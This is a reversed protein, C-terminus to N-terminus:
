EAFGYVSVGVPAPASINHPGVSVPVQAGSFAGGGIPVFQAAPIALGDLLVSGVAGAPAVVNIYNDPFDAHATCIMQNALFMRTPPITLMFPDSNQVGDYDSSNAYQAVFIPQDSTIHVPSNRIFQHSQGRNLSAVVVGNVSVTTGDQAALCRYTDGNRTALPMAVFNIGWRQTPLLQEVIYDCFFMDATPINACMHSGFVAVPKDSTIITGALNAPADNTNRLQYTQGQNLTITYPVGAPHVGTAVSPTITVTTNLDCAVLAFQTGALEPAGTLVNAYGQVIYETGLVPTPLGLYGDTTYRIHDLAFVAVDDSATVHVGNLLIVDNSDGLGAFKPLKVVIAMNAPIAFNQSFSSGAVSVNGKIGPAGVLCVSLQVPNTPDPAYNGPFTLWFDTGKNTLPVCGQDIEIRVLYDEVEGDPALGVFSLGGKQSLRFRAYTDGTKASVPVTVKLHNLGAVVAVSDFVKEGADAWSGNGDFDIWADLRGVQNASMTVTVDVFASQGPVLPEPFNVGDEDSPLGAPENDDGTATANPQGDVEADVSEGLHFGDLIQHRAGNNKLTTPYTPDPADGFDLAAKVNFQYDEVEGDSAPGVFSLGGARSFRFRAFTTGAKATAPVAFSLHNTGMVLPTSAFIRDEGDAWSGNGNFDFFADLRGSISAVVELTTTQGPIVPSTLRVGDEDDAAGTPSIDDGTANANPQGDNEFDVGSGLHFIQGAGHSAGNDKLLTPYPPPADGFDRAVVQAQLEVGSLGAILVCGFFVPLFPVKM